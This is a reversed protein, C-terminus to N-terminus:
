MARGTQRLWAGQVSPCWGEVCGALGLVFCVVLALVWHGSGVVASDVVAHVETVVAVVGAAALEVAVVVGVAVMVVGDAAVVVAAAAAFPVLVLSVLARAAGQRGLRARERRESVARVLLLMLLARM